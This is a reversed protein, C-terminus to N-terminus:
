MRRPVEVRRVRRELLMFGAIAAVTLLNLAAATLIPAAPAGTADRVWGAFPSLLGIGAYFVSYFLGMGVARQGPQLVRAPLAVILGSPLGLILGITLLLLAPHGSWPLAAIGASVGVMCAVSIAMRHGFRQGIWGGLPGVPITAFSVLSLIAGAEALTMGREVFYAPAFGLLIIYGANALTWIVGAAVVAAVVRGSMAFGGPGAAPRGAPVVVAALAMFGACCGATGLMIARWGLTEVLYPLVVSAAGIGLPWAGLLVGMALGLSADDFRDMALKTVVISLGVAGAGALLRFGLAVPFSTALGLGVGGVVM